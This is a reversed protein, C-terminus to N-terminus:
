AQKSLWSTVIEARRIGVGTAEPAAASGFLVLRANSM